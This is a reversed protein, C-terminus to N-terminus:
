ISLKQKQCSALATTSRNADSKFRESLWGSFSWQTILLLPRRDTM